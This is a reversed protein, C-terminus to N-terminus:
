KFNEVLYHANVLAWKLNYGGCLGDIDLVEGGFYIGQEKKSQFFNDIENIDIGGITAQSDNFGYTSVITFSLNNAAWLLKQADKRSLKNDIKVNAKQYIYQATNQGVFPWLVNDITKNIKLLDNEGIDDGLCQIKVAPNSLKNRQIISSLNMIAIGGLGDDKFVIEGNEQHIIQNNSLLAIKARIKEGFLPKVKEKTKLATLGPLLGNIKYGKKNLLAFLNGNSGLKPSSCGGTVIILRNVKIKEGNEFFLVIENNSKHEYDILKMGTKVLLNPCNSIQQQLIKLVNKGSLSIPYLYGEHLETLYIGLEKLLQNQKQLPFDDLLPRVFCPKNYKTADDIINNINCRGNGAVTFKKGITAGQEFIIIEDNPYKKHLLLASYIGCAGGGILAIKM